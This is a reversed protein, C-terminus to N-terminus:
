INGGEKAKKIVEELDEITKVFGRIMVCEELDEFLDCLNLDFCSGFTGAYEEIAGEKLQVNYGKLFQNVDPIATNLDGYWGIEYLNNYEDQFIIQYLNM